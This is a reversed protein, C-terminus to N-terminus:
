SRWRLVQKKIPNIFPRNEAVARAFETKLQYYWLAQTDADKILLLKPNHKLGEQQKAVLAQDQNIFARVLPRLIPKALTLWPLTWYFTSNVETETESIPTVATLNCVTHQGTTIYEIRVSPLHFAIEVEPMGGGLLRYGHSKKLLTHKSMAFGYPLPEFSKAKEFLTKGGSRWWWARHVFPGHAPDMLGVVAHDVYCPFHVTEVLQYSRDGGFYPVLPIDMNPQSANDAAMYIWINGQVERVPYQKVRFRSLDLDQGEVLSPIATCRGTSDFRWGHYCCEVEDGDFRGCTLPVARHPCIDRLAFVEGTKSRALLVPEGLLTKAVMAGPKLRGGPLAYYWLNRLFLNQNATM